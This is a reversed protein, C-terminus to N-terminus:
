KGPQLLLQAMLQGHQYGTTAGAEGKIPDITGNDNVDAGELATDGLGKISGIQQAHDPHDLLDHADEKMTTLWGKLNDMAIEVDKAQPKIFSSNGADQSNAALNAHNAALNIYGQAGLLGQGDGVLSIQLGNCKNPLPQGEAADKGELLHIINHTICEVANQDNSNKQLLETQEHLLTSQKLVGVLLGTQNPTSPFAVLLHRIHVFALTPYKATLVVAGQPREGDNTTEQTVDLRNGAALLNTGSAVVLALNQGKATLEGIRLSTEQQEDIMWAMYHSGSALAALGTATITINDTTGLSGASDTLSISAQAGSGQNSQTPKQGTSSTSNSAQQNDQNNRLITIVGASAGILCIAIIIGLFIMSRSRPRTPASPRSPAELPGPTAPAARNYANYGPTTPAGPLAQEYTTPMSSPPMPSHPNPQSVYPIPSHPNPQASYAPANANPNPQPPLPLVSPPGQFVPHSPVNWFGDAPRTPSQQPQSSSPAQSIQTAANGGQGYLPALQKGCNGCFLAGDDNPLKCNPCQM